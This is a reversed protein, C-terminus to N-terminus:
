PMGDKQPLSENTKREQEVSRITEINKLEIITLWPQVDEYNARYWDQANFYTETKGGSIFTYGYRAYIENRMIQLQKPSLGQLKDRSLIRKSAQPFQGLLYVGEVPFVSGFEGEPADDYTWTDYILLGSKWGNNEKLILFEGNTEQSYFFRGKIRVDHFTYFTDVFGAVNNRWVMFHRQAVIISDEIFVRLDCEYESIGFSYTGEYKQISDVLWPRFNPAELKQDAFYQSNAQTAFLALTLLLWHKM